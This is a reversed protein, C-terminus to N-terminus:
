SHNALNNSLSGQAAVPVWVQINNKSAWAYLSESLEIDDPASALIQVDFLPGSYEALALAADRDYLHYFALFRQKHGSDFPTIVVANITGDNSNFPTGVLYQFKECLDQAETLSLPLNM